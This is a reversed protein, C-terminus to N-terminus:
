SIFDDLLSNFLIPRLVMTKFAERGLVQDYQFFLVLLFSSKMVFDLLIFL